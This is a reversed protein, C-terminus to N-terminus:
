TVGGLVQLTQPNSDRVSIKTYLHWDASTVSPQPMVNQFLNHTLKIEASANKSPTPFPYNGNLFPSKKIAEFIRLM